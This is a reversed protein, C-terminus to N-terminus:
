EFSYIVVDDSLTLGAGFTIQNTSTVTFKKSAGEQQFIGNVFVQLYSKGGGKAVTKVSTNFITQSSTAAFEQYAPAFTVWTMISSGDTTLQQGATGDATPFRNANLLLYQGGGTAPNIHLDKADTTTILAPGATGADIVLYKDAALAVTLDNGGPPTIAGLQSISTGPGKGIAFNSESTGKANITIAM